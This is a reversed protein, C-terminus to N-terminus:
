CVREVRSMALPMAARSAHAITADLAGILRDFHRPTTEFVHRAGDIFTAPLTVAPVARSRAAAQLYRGHAIDIVRDATGHVVAVAVRADLARLTDATNFARGYCASMDFAFCGFVVHVPSVFTSVLVLADVVRARERAAAAAPGGGLSKGVVVIPTRRAGRDAVAADIAGLVADIAAEASVHARAGGARQTGAYGPYEIVYVRARTRQGLTRAYEANLSLDSTNGHAYVIYARVTSQADNTVYLPVTYRMRPTVIRRVGEVGVSSSPRRPPRFLVPDILGRFM